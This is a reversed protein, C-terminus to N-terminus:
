PNAKLFPKSKNQSIRYARNWSIFSGNSFFKKKLIDKTIIQQQKTYWSSMQQIIRTFMKIVLRNAAPQSRFFLDNKNWNMHKMYVAPLFIKYFMSLANWKEQLFLKSIGLCVKQQIEYLTVKCSLGAVLNMSLTCNRATSRTQSLFLGEPLDNGM